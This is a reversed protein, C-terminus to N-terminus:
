MYLRDMEIQAWALWKCERNCDWWKRFPWPWTCAFMDNHTDVDDDDAAIAWLFWNFSCLVHFENFLFLGWRTSEEETSHTYHTCMRSVHIERSPSSASMLSHYHVCWWIIINIEVLLGAPVVKSHRSYNLISNRTCLLRCNIISFRVLIANRRCSGFDIPHPVKPTSNFKVKWLWNVM